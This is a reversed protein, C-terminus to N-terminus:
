ASRSCCCWRCSTRGSSSCAVGRAHDIEDPAPVGADRRRHRSVVGVGATFSSSPSSRTSPSLRLGPVRVRLDSLRRSRRARTEFHIWGWVLPFRSRPPSRHLGVHDASPGAESPRGGRFSSSTRAAFALGEFDGPHAKTSTEHRRLAARRSCRGDAAGTCIRTPRSAPAVDATVPLRHRRDRFLTAITTGARRPTESSHNLNRSFATSSETRRPMVGRGGRGGGCVGVALGWAALGRAQRPARGSCRAANCDDEPPRAL